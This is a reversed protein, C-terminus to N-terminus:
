KLCGELRSLIEIKHKDPDKYKCHHEISSLHISTGSGFEPQCIECYYLVYKGGPKINIVPYCPSQELSHSLLATYQENYDDRFFEDVSVVPMFTFSHKAPQLWPIIGEMTRGEYTVDQIPPPRFTRDEKVRKSYELDLKEISSEDLRAGLIKGSDIADNIM